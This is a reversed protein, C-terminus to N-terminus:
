NINTSFYVIATLFLFHRLWTFNNNVVICLFKSKVTKNGKIKFWSEACQKHAAALDEKCSCGLETPIGSDQNTSDLSLHCIRCDKSNNDVVVVVKPLHQVAKNIEPASGGGSELDLVSSRDSTVSSNRNLQDSIVRGIELDSVNSLRDFDIYSNGGGGGGDSGGENYPSHWSRHDEADSFCLSGDSAGGDSEEYAAAAVSSRGSNSLQQQQQQIDVYTQEQKEMITTM